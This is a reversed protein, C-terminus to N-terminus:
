QQKCSIMNSIAHLYCVHLQSCTSLVLTNSKCLSLLPCVYINKSTYLHSRHLIHVSACPCMPLLWLLSHVLVVCHQLHLKIYHVQHMSVPLIMYLLVTQLLHLCKYYPDFANVAIQWVSCSYLQVTSMVRPAASFVAFLFSIFLLKLHLLMLM